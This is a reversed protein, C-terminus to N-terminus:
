SYASKPDHGVGYGVPSLYPPRGIEEKPTTCGALTVAALLLLSKRIM